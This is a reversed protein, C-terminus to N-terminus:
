NLRPKRCYPMAEYVPINHVSVTERKSLAPFGCQLFGLFMLDQRELLCGAEQISKFLM